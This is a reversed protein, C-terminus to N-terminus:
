NDKNDSNDSNNNIKKENIALFFIYAHRKEFSYEKTCTKVTNEKM